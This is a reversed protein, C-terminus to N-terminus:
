RIRVDAGAALGGADADAAIDTGSGTVAQPTRRRLGDMSYLALGAWILAFGVLRSATVTEGFLWLGLLFQLTPALYQFLGLTTLSLRRAAYAFLLLPITTAPGFGILWADVALSTAPFSTPGAGWALAMVAIAAPALLMTELSLGELAGLVAIKRLLGYAGFSFGLILGIWPPRGAGVALWVVGATALALAVWQPRSRTEGLFLTGLAVNVLPNIFYGLSADIVHGHGVAWIYTIWNISLLLSSAVFAALVARRACPM